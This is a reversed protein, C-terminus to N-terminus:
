KEEKVILFLFIFTTVIVSFVLWPNAMAMVAIAVAPLGILIVGILFDFISTM